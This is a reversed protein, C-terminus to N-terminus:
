WLDFYILIINRHVQKVSEHISNVALLPCDPGRVGSRTVGKGNEDPSSYKRNNRSAWRSDPCELKTTENALERRSM